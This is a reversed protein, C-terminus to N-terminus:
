MFIQTTLAPGIVTDTRRYPTTQTDLGQEFRPLSNLFAKLPEYHDKHVIMCVEPILYHEDEWVDFIKYDSKNDDADTFEGAKPIYINDKIYHIKSSTIM